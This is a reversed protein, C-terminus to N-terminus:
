KKLEDEKNNWCDFLYKNLTKVEELKFQELFFIIINKIM